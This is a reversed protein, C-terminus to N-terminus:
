GAVTDPARRARAQRLTRWWVLGGALLFLILGPLGFVLLFLGPSAPEQDATAALYNQLSFILLALGLAALLWAYWAIAVRRSRLWLVLALLGLGLLLGIYFLM